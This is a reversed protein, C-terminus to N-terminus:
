LTWIKSLLFSGAQFRLDVIYFEDSDSFANVVQRYQMAESTICQMNIELKLLQDVDSPVQPTETM